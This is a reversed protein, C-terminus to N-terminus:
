EGPAQPAVGAPAATLVLNDRHVLEADGPYGLRSVIEDSKVGLLKRTEEIGYNCLGRAVERGQADLCAVLDGREFDGNAGVVGVPLLSRGQERLVRAAGDDLVLQGRLQLRGAIWRKRAAMTGQAPTLLTGVPEGRAVQLLVDSQRGHVILTAAGSRAATHAAALKTRM